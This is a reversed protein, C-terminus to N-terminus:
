GKSQQQERIKKHYEEIRRLEADSVFLRSQQLEWNELDPLLAEVSLIGSINPSVISVMATKGDKNVVVDGTTLTNLVEKTM